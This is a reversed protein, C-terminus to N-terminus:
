KCTKSGTRGKCKNSICQDSATCSAGFPLKDEGGSDCDLEDIEGDCDNDIKDCIEAEPTCEDEGQPDLISSVRNFYAAFAGDVTANQISDCVDDLEYGCAGTLQGVIEGDSNVVPSGSSGGETAGFQDRSYIRDGRPWGGCYQVESDVKHWTYAQPSGGPHHIRYLDTGGSFAVPTANWGLFTSGAPAPDILEFLTYDTNKDTSLITAGRTRLNQPHMSRDELVEDCATSDCSAWFQFFNELTRADKARSICHAASLFLPRPDPGAVTDAILGGSCMWSWRGSVWQMHAVAKKLMDLDPDNPGPTVCSANEVCGANSSCYGELYRPRLHAVGALQFATSRLDEDTVPGSHRLQLIVHDGMLTHSWFEGDDHFGRGQYPGFVEGYETYLYLATNEALRFGKFQLRMATADPSHVSATFVYGGDDTAVMAGSDRKLVRKNIRSSKLDDFSFLKSVSKTLGVRAPSDRRDAQDIEAKEQDSATVSIPSRLGQHVSETVLWDHIQKRKQLAEERNFVSNSHEASKQTARKGSQGQAQATSALLLCAALIIVISIPKSVVPKSNM